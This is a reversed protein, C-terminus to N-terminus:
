AEADRWARRETGRPLAQLEAWEGDSALVAFRLGDGRAPAGPCCWCAPRSGLVADINKRRGLDQVIPEAYSGAHFLLRPVYPFKIERLTGRRVLTAAKDKEWREITTTNRALANLHYLTFLGVSVLVPVACVYNLV